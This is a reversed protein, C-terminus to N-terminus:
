QNKYEFPPKKIKVNNLTKMWEEFEQSPPNEQFLQKRKSELLLNDEGAYQASTMISHGINSAHQYIQSIKQQWNGGRLAHHEFIVM